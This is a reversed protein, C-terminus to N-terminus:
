AGRWLTYSIVVQAPTVQEIKVEGYDGLWTKVCHFTGARLPSSAQPSGWRAARCGAAGRRTTVGDVALETGHSPQLQWFNSGPRAWLTSEAATVNIGDQLAVGRNPGLAMRVVQRVVVPGAKRAEAAGAALGCAALAGLVLAARRVTPNSLRPARAM